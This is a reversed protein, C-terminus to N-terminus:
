SCWRPRYTSCRTNRRSATPSRGQGRDRSDRGPEPVHLQVGDVQGARRARASQAFELGISADVLQDDPDDRLEAMSLRRAALRSKESATAMAAVVDPLKALEERRVKRGPKLWGCSAALRPPRAVAIPSGSGARDTPRASSSATAIGSILRYGGLEVVDKSGAQQRHRRQAPEGDSKRRERHHSGVNLVRDHTHNSACASRFV